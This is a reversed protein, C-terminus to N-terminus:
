FHRGVSISLEREEQGFFVGQLRTLWGSEWRLDVSAMAGFDRNEELDVDGFDGRINNFVLGGRMVLGSPEAHHWRYEGLRNHVYAVAPIIRVDSWTLQAGPFESSASRYSGNVELSLGQTTGLVPSNSLVYELVKIHGGIAWEFGSEGKHATQEARVTGAEAWGQLFPLIRAGLRFVLHDIQLDLLDNEGMAFERSDRQLRLEVSWGSPKEIRILPSVTPELEQGSSSVVSGPLVLFIALGCILIWRDM